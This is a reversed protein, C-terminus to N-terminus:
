ALGANLILFPSDKAPLCKGLSGTESFLLTSLAVEEKKCCGKKCRAEKGGTEEHHTQGQHQDEEKGTKESSEQHSEQSTGDCGGQQPNPRRWGNL